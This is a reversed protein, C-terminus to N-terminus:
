KQHSLITIIYIFIRKGSWESSGTRIATITLTDSDADSDSNSASSTDIVDGSHTDNVDQLEYPSQVDYNYITGFASQGSGM